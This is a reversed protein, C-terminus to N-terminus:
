SIKLGRDYQALGKYHRPVREGVSTLTEWVITNSKEAQIEASIFNNKLDFGFFIVEEDNWKALDDDTVIGTVDLMLFDMCIRGVIPALKGAFLAQGKNSILRHLGDAYGIPVVAIKSPVTARWTCGYSVTEGPQVTRINNVVSKLTMVPKLKMDNFQPAPQYGYLSLGPRFGWKKISLFHNALKQKKIEALSAIGGSNLLHFYLDHSSFATMIELFLKTQQASFGETSVADESQAFHTLLAKLKLKKSKKFYASLKEAQDANFGIRNMGTNFKLHVKVTEDAVAELAQVQEWTSVVPTMQYELIKEAGRKDFGRFVLIESKVGSSRLLLGEEILCVGLTDVGVKELALATQVDGHGYANAKVMPCIFRDDDAVKKIELWNSALADLSIDAFTSRFMEM